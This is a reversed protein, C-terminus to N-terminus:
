TFTILICLLGPTLIMINQKQLNYKCMNKKIVYKWKYDGSNNYQSQHYLLKIIVSFGKKKKIMLGSKNRESPKILIYIFVYM